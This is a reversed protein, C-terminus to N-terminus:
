GGVSSFYDVECHDDNHQAKYPSYVSNSNDDMVLWHFPRYSLCYNLFTHM